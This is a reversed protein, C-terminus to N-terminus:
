KNTFLKCYRQVIGEPTLKYEILKRECLPLLQDTPSTTQCIDSILKRAEIILLKLNDLTLAYLEESAISPNMKDNPHVVIKFGQFSKYTTKFWEFSTLIQGHDDKTLLNDIEKNAKAEIILAINKGNEALLWLVDPGKKISKEPREANFGIIEGFNKLAEEFQNTSATVTLDAAIEDFYSLYGSRIKGYYKLKNIINESQKGPTIPSYPADVLPKLLNLNRSYARQQLEMAKSENGDYFYSMACLQFLWGQYFKDFEQGDLEEGCWIYKELCSNAKSFQNKRMLDFFRRESSAVELSLKNIELPVVSGALESAHYEIWERERTLCKNITDKLDDLSNIERSIAVGMEIQIRTSPTLQVMNKDNTIWSILDDGLLIVICYDGTGRTGRGMGQEINQAPTVNVFKSHGLVYQKYSDYITYGKPKGDLILLRCSDSFLDIGDYRFAFVFPGNSTRDKLCNIFTEVQTSNEALRATSRWKEMIRVSPVLIVVGFKKSISEIIENIIPGIRSKDIKMETPLLIMREGVGSLSKPIIPELAAKLEANFIRIISSDDRLTASMYVRRPCESFSPFKNVLPFFPTISFSEHNILAHCYNFEDRLLSWQIINEIRSIKDRVVPSKDKWSWYPVELVTIKEKNKIIDEFSGERSKFDNRFLNCLELYLDINDNRKISITFQERVISFATHADDLLIGKLNTFEGGRDTTGFRSKGNFLAAYTAILISEGRLFNNDFRTGREYTSCEFGYERALKYTQNKLQTTPCLYLISGKLENAISQAILLGVLTKGGGTNLKIIIDNSNRREYWNKLAEAQGSWLDNINEGKPLYHFIEIPDIPKDRSKNEKLKKFDVM